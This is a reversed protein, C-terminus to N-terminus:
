EASTKDQADKRLEKVIDKIEPDDEKELEKLLNQIEQKESEEVLSPNASFLAREIIMRVVDKNSELHIFYHNFNILENYFDLKLQELSKGKSIISVKVFKDEEKDMIFYADELFVYAAAYISNLPYLEINLKLVLKDDVLDIIEIGEM